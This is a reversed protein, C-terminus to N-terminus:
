TLYCCGCFSSLPPPSVYGNALLVGANLTLLDIFAASKPEVSSALASVGNGSPVFFAGNVMLDGDTRWNWKEWEKEKADLRRTVQLIGQWFVGM